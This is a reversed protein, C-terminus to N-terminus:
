AKRSRWALLAGWLAMALTLLTSAAFIPETLVHVGEAAVRALHGILVIAFLVTTVAIYLKV